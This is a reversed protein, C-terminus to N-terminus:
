SKNKPSKEKKKKEKLTVQVLSTEQPNKILKRSFTDRVAGRDDKIFLTM